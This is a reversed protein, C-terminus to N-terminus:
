YNNPLQVFILPHAHNIIESAKVIKCCEQIAIYVDLDYHKGVNDWGLIECRGYLTNLSVGNCISGRKYSFSHNIINATRKQNDNLIYTEGNRIEEVLKILSM